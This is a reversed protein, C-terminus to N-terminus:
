SRLLVCSRDSYSPLRVYPKRQSPPGSARSSSETDVNTAPPPCPSNPSPSGCKRLMSCVPHRSPAPCSRCWLRASPNASLMFAKVMFSFTSNGAGNDFNAVPMLVLTVMFCGPSIPQYGSWEPLLRYIESVEVCDPLRVASLTYKHILRMPVGPVRVIAMQALEPPDGLVTNCDAVTVVEVM